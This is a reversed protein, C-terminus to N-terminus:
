LPKLLKTINIVSDNLTGGAADAHGGGNMLKAAIKGMNLPCDVSRRM